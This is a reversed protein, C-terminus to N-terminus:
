YYDDGGTFCFHSRAYINGNYNTYIKNNSCECINSFWLHHLTTSDITADILRQLVLFLLNVPPLCSCSCSCLCHLTKKQKMSFSVWEICLAHTQQTIVLHKFVLLFYLCSTFFKRQWIGYLKFFATEPFSQHGESPLGKNCQFSRSKLSLDNRLQLSRHPTCHAVYKTGASQFLGGNYLTLVASSPFWIRGYGNITRLIGPAPEKGLLLGAEALWRYLLSLQMAPRWIPSSSKPLCIIHEWVWQLFTLSIYRFQSQM